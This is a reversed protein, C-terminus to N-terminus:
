TPGVSAGHDAHNMPLTSVFRKGDCSDDRRAVTGSFTDTAFHAQHHKPVTRHLMLQPNVNYYALSSKLLFEGEVSCLVDDVFWKTKKEASQPAHRDCTAM